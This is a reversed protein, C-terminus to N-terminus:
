GFMAWIWPRSSLPPKVARTISSTSPSSRDCRMARRRAGPAEARCTPIGRSSANGIAFCIGLREFRRVLLADDM